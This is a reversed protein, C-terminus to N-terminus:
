ASRRVIGVPITEIRTETAKQQLRAAYNQPASSAYTIPSRLGMATLLCALPLALLFEELGFIHHNVKGWANELRNTSLHRESFGSHVPEKFIDTCDFSHLLAGQAAVYDEIAIGQDCM